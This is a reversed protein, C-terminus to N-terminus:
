LGEGHQDVFMSKKTRAGLRTTMWSVGEDDRHAVRSSRELYGTCPCTITRNKEDYVPCCILHRDQTEKLAAEQSAAVFPAGREHVHCLMGALHDEHRFNTGNAARALLCATCTVRSCNKATCAFTDTLLMAQIRLQHTLESAGRIKESEEEQGGCTSCHKHEFKTPDKRSRKKGIRWAKCRAHVLSYHEICMHLGETKSYVSGRRNCWGAVCPIDSSQYVKERARSLRAFYGNAELADVSNLKKEVGDGITFIRLQDDARMLAYPELRAPEWRTGRPPPQPELGDSWVRKGESRVRKGAANEDCRLRLLDSRAEAKRKLDKERQKETENVRAGASLHRNAVMSERAEQNTILEHFGFVLARWAAIALQLPVMNAFGQYCKSANDELRKPLSFLHPDFGQLALVRGPCLRVSSSEEGIKIIHPPNSTMTWGSNDDLPKRKGSRPNYYEYKKPDLGLVTSVSLTRGYVIYRNLEQAVREASVNRRRNGSVWLCRVRRQATACGDNALVKVFQLSFVEDGNADRVIKGKEMFEILERGPVEEYFSGAIPIMRRLETEVSVLFNLVNKTWEKDGVPNEDSAEQCPPSLQLYISYGDQIRVQTEVAAVGDGGNEKRLLVSELTFRTDLGLKTLVAIVKKKIQNAVMKVRSEYGGLHAAPTEYPGKRIRKKHSIQVRNKKSTAAVGKSTGKLQEIRRTNGPRPLGPLLDMCIYERMDEEVYGAAEANVPLDLVTEGFHKRSLSPLLPKLNLKAVDIADPDNDAHVIEVFGCAEAGLAAGGWGGFLTVTLVLDHENPSSTGWEFPIVTGSVLDKTGLNLIRRTEDFQKKRAKRLHVQQLTATQAAYKSKRSTAITDGCTDSTTSTMQIPPERM